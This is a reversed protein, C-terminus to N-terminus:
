LLKLNVTFNQSLLTGLNRGGGCVCVTEGGINVDQELITHKNCDPFQCPCIMILWLQYM